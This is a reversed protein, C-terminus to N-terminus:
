GQAIRLQYSVEWHSRAGGQARLARQRERQPAKHGKQMAIEDNREGCPITQWRDIWEANEDRGAPQHGVVGILDFKKPLRCGVNVANQAAGLRGVKRHLRRGFVWRDQVQLRRARKTKIYRWGQQLAGICKIPSSVECRSSTTGACNRTITVCRGLYAQRAQSCATPV